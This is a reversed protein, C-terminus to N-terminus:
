RRLQVQFNRERSLIRQYLDKYSSISLGLSEAFLFQNDKQCFLLWHSCDNEYSNFLQKKGNQRFNNAAFVGVFKHKLKSFNYVLDKIDDEDM